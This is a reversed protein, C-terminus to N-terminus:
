CRNDREPQLEKYSRRSYRRYGKKIQVGSMREAETVAQRISAVTSDINVVVGRRIGESPAKGLGIIDLSGDENKSAVVACIKTTGFDLGVFINDTAM